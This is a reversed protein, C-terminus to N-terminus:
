YYSHLVGGSISNVVGTTWPFTIELGLFSRVALYAFAQAEISDGDWGVDEATAVIGKFQNNLHDKLTLNKRGGGVLIIKAPKHRGVKIFILDAISKTITALADVTSM